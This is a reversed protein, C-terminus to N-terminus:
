KKCSDCPMVDWFVADESDPMNVLFMLDGTLHSGLCTAVDCLGVSRISM